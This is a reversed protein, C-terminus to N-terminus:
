VFTQTAFISTKEEKKREKGRERHKAFLGKSHFVRIHPHTSFSLSHLISCPLIVAFPNNGNKSGSWRVGSQRLRFGPSWPDINHDCYEAIKAL